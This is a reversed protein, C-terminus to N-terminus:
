SAQRKRRAKRIRIVQDISFFLILAMLIAFFYIDNSTYVPSNDGISKFSMWYHPHALRSNVNGLYELKAARLAADKTKGRKLNKYFSTMIQTGANDEVEWLSMVISPCGAYLFGRALSMLGEGKQMKGVGTNCASLVTLRVNDLKLNYIDATNLWGDKLIDDENPEPSFALRSFAPLSDNIYAHMALHLIDYDQSNERFNQESAEKARFIKTKVTRAIADVEKQVGPLPLLTYSANSLEFKESEYEPAFALIRNQVNRDSHRYKMLINASNAYNVNFDRVLYDLKTFDIVQNTDPTTRLLGDFAIYNLKGDPIIILNKNKIEESVPGILLKYMNGAAVCFEKSDENTTFIYNPTTMFHFIYEMSQETGASISQQILSSKEKTILFTYLMRTSDSENLVYELIAEKKHLKAQIDSIGLMSKSYKLDYYDPYNDELFRNLEDRQRSAEFIKSQFENVLSSDPEDLSSEEFIKENCYSITNNLKSELELLSDPILSNEQAIDTSIKDFVASSKLQESNSFALELYDADGNLDYALYATEIIKSFTEYELQALQIKSEDGSLEQRARQTLSSIKEYRALAHELSELYFSNKEEKHLVALDYYTDAITKLIGLSYLFSLSNTTTLDDLTPITNGAYLAELSKNYWFIAEELNQKRQQKFAIINPTVIPKSYNLKGKFHYYIALETGKDKQTQSIIEYAKELTSLGEEFASLSSLFEAYNLYEIATQIHDPGYYDVTLKITQLYYGKAVDKNHLNQNIIAILESYYIKNFDDVEPLYSKLIDLAKSYNGLLNNIEAISYNILYIRDLNNTKDENYMKLAQEYYELANVYDLKSRYVNGINGYLNALTAPNVNGRLNYCKNALNYSELAEDNRGLLKMTIGLAMYTSGLYYDEDPYAKKRYELALKFTDLAEFSRGSENLNIGSRYLEISKSRFWETDVTQGIVLNPIFLSFILLTYTASRFM